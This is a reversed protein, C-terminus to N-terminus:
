GSANHGRRIEAISRQVITRSQVRGTRLYNELIPITDPTGVQSLARAIKRMVRLDQTAHSDLPERKPRGRIRARM